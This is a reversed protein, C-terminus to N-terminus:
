LTGGMGRSTVTVSTEPAHAAGGGGRGQVVHRALPAGLAVVAGGAGGGGHGAGEAGDVGGGAQGGRGLALGTGATV